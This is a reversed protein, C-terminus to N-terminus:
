ITMLEQEKKDGITKIEDNHKKVFEELEEQFRFKEDETIKKDKEAAAIEDKVTERVSRLSIRSQELKQGLIKIMEKRNEETMQPMSLRIKTGENVPNIGINALQIAKEMEKIISKDWPEVVLTKPDSIIINALGRIPTKVGYADVVINEVLSPHARGTRLSSLETKLHEIVKVFNEKHSELFNNM